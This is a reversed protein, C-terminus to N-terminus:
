AMMWECEFWLLLRFSPMRVVFSLVLLNVIVGSNVVLGGLRGPLFFFLEGNVPLCSMLEDDGYEECRVLDSHFVQSDALGLGLGWSWVGVGVGM